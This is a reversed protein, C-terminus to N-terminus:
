TEYQSPLVGTAQKFSKTFVRYSSFGVLASIESVSKDTKSLYYKAKNVRLRTLYTHFNVGVERKFMLSFYSSNFHFEESVRNLNIDEEM